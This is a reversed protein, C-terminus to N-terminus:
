PCKESTLVDVVKEAWTISIGMTNKRVAIDLVNQAPHIHPKHGRESKIVIGYIDPPSIEQIWGPHFHGDHMRALIPVKEKLQDLTM